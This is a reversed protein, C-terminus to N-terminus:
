RNDPLRSAAYDLSEPPTRRSWMTSLFAHSKIGPLSPTPFCAIRHDPVCRCNNLCRGSTGVTEHMLREEEFYVKRIRICFRPASKPQSPPHLPKPSRSHDGLVHIHPEHPFPCLSTVDTYTEQTNPPQIGSGSWDRSIVHINASSHQTGHSTQGIQRGV